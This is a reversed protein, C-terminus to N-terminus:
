DRWCGHSREAANVECGLDGFTTQQKWITVNATKRSGNSRESSPRCALRRTMLGFNGLESLGGKM